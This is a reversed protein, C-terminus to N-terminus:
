IKQHFVDLSKVRGGVSEVIMRMRGIQLGLLTGQQVVSGRLVMLVDVDDVATSASAAVADAAGWVFRCFVQM